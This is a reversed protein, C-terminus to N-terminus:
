RIRRRGFALLALLGFAALALTSPEPVTTLFGRIEGGPVVSTHINLYAEGSAMGTALAVEALAITGGQATVFAPNYSTAQTLDLTSDYTGSTVGLPFGSFSPTTTAVGGTGTEPSATPSHIHSATTTGLLGSFTIQVRLTHLVDDYDVEAFGTAPSANPPFEAPGSLDASYKILAAESTTAVLFAITLVTLIVARPIIKMANTRDYALFTHQSYSPMSGLLFGSLFAGL